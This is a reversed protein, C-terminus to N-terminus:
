YFVHGGFHYIYIKILYCIPSVTTLVVAGAHMCTNVVEDIVTGGRKAWQLSQRCSLLVASGLREDGRGLVCACNGRCDDFQVRVHMCFLLYVAHRVLAKAMVDRM